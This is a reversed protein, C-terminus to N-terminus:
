FFVAHEEGQTHLALRQLQAPFDELGESRLRLAAIFKRLFSV